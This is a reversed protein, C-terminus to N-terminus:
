CGCIRQEHSIMCRHGSGSKLWEDWYLNVYREDTYKVESWMPISMRVATMWKVEDCTAYYLMVTMLLCPVWGRDNACPLGGHCLWGVSCTGHYKRWNMDDLGRSLFRLWYNCCSPKNQFKRWWRTDRGDVVALWVKDAVVPCLANGCAGLKMEVESVAHHSCLTTVDQCWIEDMCGRCPSVVLCWVYTCVWSM